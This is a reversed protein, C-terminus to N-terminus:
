TSPACQRTTFNRGKLLSNDTMPHGLVWVALRLIIITWLFRQKRTGKAWLNIIYKTSGNWTLWKLGWNGWFGLIGMKHIVEKNKLVGVLNLKQGHEGIMVARGRHGGRFRLSLWHCLSHILAGERLAFPCDHTLSLVSTKGRVCVWWARQSAQSLDSVCVYVCGEASTCKAKGM